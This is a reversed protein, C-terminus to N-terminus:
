PASGPALFFYNEKKAHEFLFPTGTEKPNEGEKEQGL